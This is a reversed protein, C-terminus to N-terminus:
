CPFLGYLLLDLRSAYRIFSGFQLVLILAKQLAPHVVDARRVKALLESLATFKPFAARKALPLSSIHARLAFATREFFSTLQANDQLGCLVALSTEFDYNLDGFVLLQYPSAM